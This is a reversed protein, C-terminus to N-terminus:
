GLGEPCKGTTRTQTRTSQNGDVTITDSARFFTITRGTTVRCESPMQEVVNVPTGGMVYRGAGTFYSLRSGTGHKGGTRLSVTEYAELRDIQRGDELLYLEITAARLDGDRANVLRANTTFTATREADAYVLSGATGTTMSRERAGTTENVQDLELVTRVEGTATLNGSAESLTITEAKISTAGQWIQAEGTYTATEGSRELRSATVNVPGDPSFMSPRQGEPGGPKLVSRVDTEALFDQGGAVLSIVRAQVSARTDDVRAFLATGEASLTIDGSHMRYLMRPASATRGADRVSVNGEFTAREIAELTGATALDLTDASVTRDLAPGHQGAPRSEKFVVRETFTAGVLGRGPSALGTLTGGTIVRTPTEPSGPLSLEVRDSAALGELGTGDPALRMDIIQAALRRGPGTEGRFQVVGNGALVAHRLAQGDEGYALNIDTAQLSSLAHPAPVRVSSKDRLEVGRVVDDAPQLFVTVTEGALTEGARSVEAAGQLRIYRDNRAFGASGARMSTAGQGAEDAAVDIQAREVLWLVNRANDFTAGTSQGRMRGRAFTVAGPVHLVGDTSDYTAEPGTVVLDDSTHLRLDGTLHITQQEGTVEAQQGSLVFGRRDDREPVTVVVQKFVTRGDPYTLLGEHAIDLDRTGGSTRTILGGSSEVLAHPDTRPDAAAGPQRQPDRLLYGLWLAFGVAFLALAWRVPRQWRIV